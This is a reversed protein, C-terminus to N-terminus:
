STSAPAAVPDGQVATANLTPPIVAPTTAASKEDTDMVVDGSAEEPKVGSLGEQVETLKGQRAELRTVAEAAGPVGAGALAGLVESARQWNEAVGAEAVDEGWRREELRKALVEGAGPLGLCM